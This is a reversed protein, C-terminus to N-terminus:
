HCRFQARLPNWACPQETRRFSSRPPHRARAQAFLIPSDVTWCFTSPNGYDTVQEPKGHPLRMRYIASRFQGFHRIFALSRGDPSYRPWFDSSVGLPPEVLQHKELTDLATVWIAQKFLDPSAARDSFAITKGDPSWSPSNPGVAFDLQREVAGTLSTLYLGSQYPGVGGRCFVIQEGDPSWAPAFDFARDTTLRSPENGPRSVDLVYIDGNNRREGDSYFAIWDGDPSLQPFYKRGPPSTVQTIRFNSARDDSPDLRLYALTGLTIAVVASGVLLYKTKAWPRKGAEENLEELATKIDHFQQFRNAPEKRLCHAIIRQVEAPVTGAIKGIPEPEGRLVAAFTSLNSDGQFARRGTVMEYLVAGFAFIDSREDVAKGRAQEPSMYAVTGVVVGSESLSDSLRAPSSHGEQERFTLKALGFDLIKVTGDETVVINSPKLDRHIIGARHAKAMADAIQIAYRLTERIPLGGGAIVEALPKGAVYEMTIFDIDDASTIDYITVINPHNLSSASRAEHIFRRKRDPDAMRGPPLVKIAVDRRLRTDEARYVVGMGGQGIKELIRYHLLARGTLDSQPDQAQDKALAMAAVEVAPRDFLGRSKGDQEILSAVEERLSEDGACAEDFFAERQGPDRELAAHVIETIQRWREPDM